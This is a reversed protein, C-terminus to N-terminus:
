PSEREENQQGFWKASGGSHGWFMGSFHLGIGILVILLFPMSPTRLTFPMQPDLFLLAFFVIFAGVFALLRAFRQSDEWIEVRKIGSIQQSIDIQNEYREVLLQVVFEDKPNLLIPVIRIINKSIDQILSISQGSDSKLRHDLDAPWTEIISAELINAEPNVEVRVPAQYDQVTIPVNGQNIIALHLLFTGEALNNNYQVTLKKRAAGQLSILPESKLVRMSLRKHPRNLFWLYTALGSALLTAIPAFLRVDIDM